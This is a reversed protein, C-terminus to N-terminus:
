GAISGFAKWTGPSGATTCVWGLTGAAAPATNWVIDGVAWTGATPAAAGHMARRGWTNGADVEAVETGIQVTGPATNNVLRLGSIRGGGAQTARFDQSSNEMCINGSVTVNSMVGGTANVVRIGYVNGRCGNSSFVINQMTSTANTTQCSLGDDGNGNVANGSVLVDSITSSQTNLRLGDGSNARITNASISIRRANAVQIGDGGTSEAIINASCSFEIVKNILVGANNARFVNGTLTVKSLWNAEQSSYVDTQYGYFLNGFCVNNEITHAYTVDEDACPSIIGSGQNNYSYCGSCM